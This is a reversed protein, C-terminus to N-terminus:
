FEKTLRGFKVTLRRRFNPWARKIASNRMALLLLVIGGYILPVRIDAKVSMGYHLVALLAAPYVLRHLRKWNKGLRKMWGRTSTIALPAMILFVGFGLLAFPKEFIAERLLRWNFGYDLGVFVMFHITAYLFTYLGLKRRAKLAWRLGFLTHLPTASLTLVLLILATKGTRLTIAQIPNATLSGTLYDRILWLAPLISGVHVLIQIGSYRIREMLVNEETMLEM